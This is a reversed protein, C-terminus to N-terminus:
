RSSLVQSVHRIGEVYNVFNGLLTTMVKITAEDILEGYENFKSAAQGVLVEPKPLVHAGMGHLLLRLHTQSRVAGYNGASAGMVAVPKESLPRVPGRSFWDLANKLVGTYTYNYEPSAFIVGDAQEIAGKAYAVAEPMGERELDADFFPIQRLDLIELSHDPVLIGSAARLLSSNFSNARISGSIGIFKM